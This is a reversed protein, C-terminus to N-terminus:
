AVSCSMHDANQHKRKDNEDDDDDDDDNGHADVAVLRSVVISDLTFL